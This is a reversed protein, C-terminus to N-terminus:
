GGLAATVPETLRALSREDEILPVGHVASRAIVVAARRGVAIGLIVAGDRDRHVADAITTANEETDAEVLFTLLFHAGSDPPDAMVSVVRKLARRAGEVAPAEALWVAPLSLQTAVGTVGYRGDDEIVAAVTLAAKLLAVAGAVPGSADILV